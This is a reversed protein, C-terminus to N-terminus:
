APPPPTPAPPDGGGGAAIRGGWTRPPSPPGAGPSPRGPGGGGCSPAPAPFPASSPAPLRAPLCGLWAPKSTAPSRSGLGPEGCASRLTVAGAAGRRECVRRARGSGSAADGPLAPAPAHGRAAAAAANNGAARGRQEGRPDGAGAAAQPPPGPSPAAPCGHADAGRPSSGGDAPPANKPNKKQPPPRKEPAAPGPSRGPAPCAAAPGRRAGHGPLRAAIADSPLRRGAPTAGSAAPLQASGPSHSPPPSLLRRLPSGAPGLLRGVGPGRSAGGSGRPLAAAARGGAQGPAGLREASAPSPM